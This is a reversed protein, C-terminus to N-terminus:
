PENKQEKNILADIRSHIEYGASGGVLAFQEKVENLAELRVESLTAEVIKRKMNTSSCLSLKILLDNALDYKPLKEKEKALPPKPCPGSFGHYNFMEEGPAMPEGCLQCYNM